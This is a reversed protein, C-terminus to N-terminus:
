ATKTTHILNAAALESLLRLVSKRAHEADVEFERELAWSLDDSRVGQNLLQWIRAGTRNLRFCQRSELQLLVGEGGELSSFLAAPHIFITKCVTNRVTTDCVTAEPTYAPM